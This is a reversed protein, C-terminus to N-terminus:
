GGVTAGPEGPGLPGSPVAHGADADFRAGREDSPLALFVALAVNGIPVAYLLMWWGSRNTDHLRRAALAIWPLATVFLVATALGLGVKAVPPLSSLLYGWVPFPDFSTLARDLTAQEAPSPVEPRFTLVGFVWPIQAVQAILFSWLAWWWFEARAARGRFVVAGRWFRGFSATFTAEHWPVGVPPQTQM